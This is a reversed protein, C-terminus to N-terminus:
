TMKEKIVLNAKIYQSKYISDALSSNDEFESIIERANTADDSIRTPTPTPTATSFDCPNLRINLVTLKKYIGTITAESFLDLGEAYLDKVKEKKNPSYKFVYVILFNYKHISM